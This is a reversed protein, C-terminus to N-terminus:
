HESIIILYKSNVILSKISFVGICKYPYSALASSSQVIHNDHGFLTGYRVFIVYKYYACIVVAALSLRAKFIAKLSIIIRKMILAIMPLFALLTLDM